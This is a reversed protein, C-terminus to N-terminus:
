NDGYVSQSWWETEEGGILHCLIDATADGLHISCMPPPQPSEGRRHLASQTGLFASYLHLLNNNNNRCYQQIGAPPAAPTLYDSGIRQEQILGVRGATKRWAKPSTQATSFSARSSSCLLSLSSSCSCSISLSSIWCTRWPTWWVTLCPRLSLLCVYLYM